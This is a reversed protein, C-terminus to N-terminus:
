FTPVSRTNVNQFHVKRMLINKLSEYRPVLKEVTEMDGTDEAIEIATGYSIVPGWSEMIPYEATPSSNAFAEPRKWAAIKFTYADDPTAMFILKEDYYLVDNPRAEDFTTTTPWELYFTDPNLYLNISYGDITAPYQISVIEDEFINGTVSDTQTVLDYEEEGDETDFQFWGKLEMPRVESPFILQYYRNIYDVLAADSLDNTDSRGSLGRVKTKIDDLTWLSLAM